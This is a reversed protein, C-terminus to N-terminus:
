AYYNVVEVADRFQVGKKDCQAAFLTQDNPTEGQRVEDKSREDNLINDEIIYEGGYNCGAYRATISISLDSLICLSM